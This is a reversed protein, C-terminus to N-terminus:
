IDQDDKKREGSKLYNHATEMRTWLHQCGRDDKLRESAPGVRTLHQARALGARTPHQPRALGVHTPHQPGAPGVLTPHQPRARALSLRSIPM